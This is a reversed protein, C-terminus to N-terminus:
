PIFLTKHVVTVDGTQATVVDASRTPLQVGPVSPVGRSRALVDLSVSSGAPVTLALVIGSDPPASYELRWFRVVGRYRATDIARGDISSRLVRTGNARLSITEAGSPPRIRLTVQREGAATSDSVVAAVPSEVVLRTAGSYSVSRGSGFANSLWAPPSKAAGFVALQSANPGRAVLWGDSSDADVAYAFISPTPHDPTSRVTMMGVAVLALGAAFAAGSAAWRNGGLAELQPALLWALLAVLVGAAIAGPGAAGLMVASVAYVVPVVVAASVITAVWMAIGAGVGPTLRTTTTPPASPMMLSAVAGVVLPWAFLFSVGPL